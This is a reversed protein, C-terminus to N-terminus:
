SIGTPSAKWYAGHGIEGIGIFTWNGTYPKKRTAASHNQQLRILLTKYEEQMRQFEIGTGGKDPHLQKAVERYRMKAQELDTIDEFYNM